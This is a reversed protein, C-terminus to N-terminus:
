KALAAKEKEYRAKDKKAADEFPLKQAATLKKWRAGIVKSQETIKLDPTEEKVKLREEQSFFIYSSKGRKPGDKKAGKAKKGSKAGKGAKQTKGM